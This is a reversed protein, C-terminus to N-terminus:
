DSKYLILIQTYKVNNDKKSQKIRMQLILDLKTQLNITNYSYHNLYHGSLNKKWKIM